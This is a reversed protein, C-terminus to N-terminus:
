KFYCAIFLRESALPVLACGARLPKKNGASLPCVIFPCTRTASAAFRHPQLPCATLFQIKAPIRGAFNTTPLYKMGSAANILSKFHAGGCASLLTKGLPFFNMEDVPLRNNEVRLRGPKDPERLADNCTIAKKKTPFIGSQIEQQFTIGDSRCATDASGM